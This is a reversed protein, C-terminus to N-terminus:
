GNHSRDINYQNALSQATRSRIDQHRFRGEMEYLVGERLAGDCHDMRQLELADFIAELIALGAPFITRRDPKIGEFDIKDVEGLKFLTRERVDEHHHRGLLDYLVGERLAGDCHDMRQLELADFIAELIALGAPFIARRDPKIGDFDIKEAHTHYIVRNNLASHLPVAASEGLWRGAILSQLTSIQAM